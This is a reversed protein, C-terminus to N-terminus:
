SCALTTRGGRENELFQAQLVELLARCRDEEEASLLSNMTWDRGTISMVFVCCAVCGKTTRKLSGCSILYGLALGSCLSMNVLGSQKRDLQSAELIIRGDPCDICGIMPKVTM